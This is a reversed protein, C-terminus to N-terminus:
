YKVSIDNKEWYYTKSFGKWQLIKVEMRWRQIRALSKWDLRRFEPLSGEKEMTWIKDAPQHIHGCSRMIMIITSPLKLPKKRLIVLLNVAKKVSNKVKKSLSVKGKGFKELIWNIARNVLILWDYGMGGLKAIFKCFRFYYWYFM